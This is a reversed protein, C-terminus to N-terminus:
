EGSERFERADGGGTGEVRWGRLAWDVNNEIVRARTPIGATTRFDPFEAELDATIAALEDASVAGDDAIADSILDRHGELIAIEDSLLEDFAGPAGHGPYITEAEPFMARLDHLQAIWSDLGGQYLVPFTHSNVLDGTFLAREEPLYLVMTEVAENQRLLRAEFTVGDITLPGDREVIRDPIPVEAPFDEGFQDQRNTIFGNEDNSMSRVTWASAHYPVGEGSQLFVSAGGFHDTHPHTVVVASIEADSTEDLHALAREADSLRWHADIAIVGTDGEVWYNNVSHNGETDTTYGSVIGGAAIPGETPALPEDAAVPPATLVLAALAAGTRLHSRPTMTQSRAPIADFTAGLPAKVALATALGLRAKTPTNM